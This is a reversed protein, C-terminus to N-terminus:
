IDFLNSLKRPKMLMLDLQAKGIPLGCSMGQSVDVVTKFMMPVVTIFIFYYFYFEPTRWKSPSSGSAIANARADKSTPPRADGTAKLPTTSSVTFRPDLTDLSYLRRAWYFLSTM